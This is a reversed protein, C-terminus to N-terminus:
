KTQTIFTTPTQANEHAAEVNIHTALAKFPSYYYNRLRNLSSLCMLAKKPYTNLAPLITQTQM